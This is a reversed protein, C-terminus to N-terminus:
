KERMKMRVKKKHRSHKLGVVFPQYACAQIERARDSKSKLKATILMKQLVCGMEGHKADGPLGRLRLGVDM